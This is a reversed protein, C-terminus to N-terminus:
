ASRTLEYDWGLDDKLSLGFLEGKVKDGGSYSCLSTYKGEGKHLDSIQAMEEESLKIIAAPCSRVLEDAFCSKGPGADHTTHHESLNEKQRGAHASKPVVSIGRQVNWSLIVQGPAADHKKTIDKILDERLIPSNGQGVPCYATVHIGKGECYARLEEQPLFPHVEVQNVAPVVKADKLLIDLNKISFNSVGISRVKGGALAKEMEAWTENFTPSQSMPITKGNLQAQPWHMLWLDIYELDLEKLSSELANAVNDHDATALKTTIFVQHRPIASERM